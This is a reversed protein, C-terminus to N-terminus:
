FDMSLSELDRADLSPDARAELYIEWFDRVGLGNNVERAEVDYVAEAVAFPLALTSTCFLAM